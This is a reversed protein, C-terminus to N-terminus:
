FVGLHTVLEGAVFGLEQAIEGALGSVGGEVDEAM